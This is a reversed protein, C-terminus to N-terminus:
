QQEEKEEAAATATAEKKGNNAMLIKTYKPETKKEVLKRTDLIFIQTPTGNM